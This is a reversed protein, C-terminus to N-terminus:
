CSWSGPRWWFWLLAASVADWTRNVWRNLSDCVRWPGADAPVSPPATFIHHCYFRCSPETWACSCKVPNTFHTKPSYKQNQHWLSTLRGTLPWVLVVLVVRQGASRWSRCLRLMMNFKYFTCSHWCKMRCSHRCSSTIKSDSVNKDLYGFGLDTQTTRIERRTSTNGWGSQTEYM